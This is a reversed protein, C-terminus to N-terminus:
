LPHAAFHKYIADFAYRAGSIIENKNDPSGAVTDLRNLFDKWYRGTHNGYGFFFRAGHNEGFGLASDINKLIFRGGLTSGEITYMVGMAFAVSRDDMNGMVTPFEKVCYGIASLDDEILGLKRRSEIDTVVPAIKCFIESETEAIVAHMLQLYHAYEAVTINPNVISISVPLNELNRHSVSTESRLQELFTLTTESTM